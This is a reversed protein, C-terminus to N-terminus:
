YRYRVLVSVTRTRPVAEAERWLDRQAVPQAGLDLRDAQLLGAAPASYLSGEGVGLRSRTVRVRVRVGRAVAGTREARLGSSCRAAESAKSSPGRM